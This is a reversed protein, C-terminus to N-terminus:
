PKYGVTSSNRPVNYNTENFPYTGVITSGFKPRYTYKVNTVILFSNPIRLAAPVDYISNVKPSAANKSKAWAVRPKKKSDINVGVVHIILGTSSYPAMVSVSANMIGTVEKGTINESQAVLDALTAAVRSVKRSNIVGLSTQAVGLYIGVLMPAIMAFEIGSVGKVDARFGLWAHSISAKFISLEQKLATVTM